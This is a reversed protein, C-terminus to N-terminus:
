HKEALHKTITLVFAADEASLKRYVAEMEKVEEDSIKKDVGASRRLQSLQYTEWSTYPKDMWGHGLGLKEEIKRAVRNGFSGHGGCLQNVYVTDNYGLRKALEKRTWKNALYNINARRIELVTM